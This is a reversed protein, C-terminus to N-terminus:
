QGRPGKYGSARRKTGMMQKQTLSQRPNKRSAHNTLLRLPSTNIGGGEYKIM